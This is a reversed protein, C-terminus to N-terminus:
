SAALRGPSRSRPVSSLGGRTGPGHQDGAYRVQSKGLGTCRGSLTWPRVPCQLVGRRSPMPIWRSQTCMDLQQAPVPGAAQDMFIGLDCSTVRNEAGVPEGDALVGRVGPARCLSALGDRVVVLREPLLRTAQGHLRAPADLASRSPRIRSRRARWAARVTPSRRTAAAGPSSSWSTSTSGSGRLQAPLGFMAISASPEDPHSPPRGDHRGEAQARLRQAHRARIRFAQAAIM